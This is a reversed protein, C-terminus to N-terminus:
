GNGPRNPDMLEDLRAKTEDDLNAARGLIEEDFRQLNTGDTGRLAARTIRDIFGSAEVNEIWAEAAAIAGDHDGEFAFTFDIYHEGLQNVTINSGTDWRYGGAKFRRKLKQGNRKLEDLAALSVVSIVTGSAASFGKPTRIAIASLSSM